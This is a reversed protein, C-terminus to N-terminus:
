AGLFVGWAIRFRETEFTLDEPGANKLFIYSNENRTLLDFRYTTTAAGLIRASFAKYVLFFPLQLTDVSKERNGGKEPRNRRKFPIHVSRFQLSSSQSM